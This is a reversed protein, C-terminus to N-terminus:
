KLLDHWFKGAPKTGKIPKIEQICLEKPNHSSWAHKPCKIKFLYLYLYTLSLCTIEKLNYLITIKLVNSIGLIFIIMVKASAITIVIRPYNISVVPAYSVTFYVWEIISSGDAFDISYIDYKQDIETTKVIFSIRNHSIKKNLTLLSRKFPDSLTTCKAM